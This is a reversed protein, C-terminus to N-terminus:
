VKFNVSEDGLENKGFVYDNGPLVANLLIGVLAGVALGSLSVSGLSISGAASFTIGLALSMELAAIIVNRSKTFDVQNEVVNRVGVASIMGYLILSVGGITATPMCAILAEFKPCFAFIVALVAAIRIVKPDYVKTLALVGTNEGYTTNAPAGFAAALITASGDGLLTRHLGPDAVYNEGVTSSIACMDGIHEIVTALAIPMM